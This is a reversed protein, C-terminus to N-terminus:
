VDFLTLCVIMLLDFYCLSCSCFEMLTWGLTSSERKVGCALSVVYNDRPPNLPILFLLSPINMDTNWNAAPSISNKACKGYNYTPLSYCALCCATRKESDGLALAMVSLTGNTIISGYTGCESKRCFSDLSQRNLTM